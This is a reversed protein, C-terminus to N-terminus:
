RESLQPIGAGNYSIARWENNNKTLLMMGIEQEFPTNTNQMHNIMEVYAVDPRIFRVGDIHSSLKSGRMVGDFLQQHRAAIKSRGFIKEGFADRFEADETFVRAFAHVDANNWASVIDKILQQVAVKDQMTPKTEM